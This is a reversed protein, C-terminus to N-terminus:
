RDTESQHPLEILRAKEIEKTLREPNERLVREFIRWVLRAFRQLNYEAEAREEASLEPYLDAITIKREPQFARRRQQQRQLSDQYDFSNNEPM